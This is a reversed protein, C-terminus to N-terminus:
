TAKVMEEAAALRDTLKKHMKIDIINGIPWVDNAHAERIQIMYFDARLREMPVTMESAEMSINPITIDSYKLSHASLGTSGNRKLHIGPYIQPARWMLQVAE